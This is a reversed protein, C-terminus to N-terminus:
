SESTRSWRAAYGYSKSYYYKHRSIDVRNLVAGLMNPRSVTITEIAREALHSRTMESGLVFAVGSVSRALISADTVALVPPTDIIVWDFPGTNAQTMLTEMRASALLESPNPPVAGATMIWLDPNALRQVVNGITAQGSLLESLGHRNELGFASHVGPRRMDADILLVRAGGEALALALNCATTTKGEQPQASTVLVIAVGESTNSFAVSTRLARIAERFDSPARPVIVALDGTDKVAPIIGLCPMGLRRAVDEPTKITDDVYDLVVVLGFAVFLAVSSALILTRPMNPSFPADPARARDVLRVNNGRSNALVQLEKERQSLTEYLQRNSQAERELVTYGVSKRDLDTAAAKQEELAAVLTHEERAASEYDHRITDAAKALESNLSRTVDQISANVTVIEPHRDGYRESLRTKQRQLDALQSKIAQIYPNQAIPPITDATPLEGLSQVQELLSEKQARSTRARTVADNLQNLRAIVINQRDALSLANHDERYQAMARESTEVMAKQRTLEQALWELSKAMNQKRLELNQQIYEEGLTNAATAALRPDGAVFYVDVLRSAKVPQVSVRAIFRDIVTDESVPADTSRNPQPASSGLHSTRQAVFSRAMSLARALTDDSRSHGFEPVRALGLRSTVRRALDRGTLIRYQTQFYPEPDQLTPMAPGSVGEMALSREDEIEILLRINARYLATQCYTYLASGFVILLFTNMAVYRYRYLAGLRDLLQTDAPQALSPVRGEHRLPSRSAPRHM